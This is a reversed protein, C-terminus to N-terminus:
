VWKLEKAEVASVVGVTTMNLSAFRRQYRTPLQATVFSGLNKAGSLIVPKVFAFGPNLVEINMILETGM